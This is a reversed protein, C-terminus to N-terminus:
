FYKDWGFTGKLPHYGGADKIYDEFSVPQGPVILISYSQSETGQYQGRKDPVVGPGSFHPLIFFADERHAIKFVQQDEELNKTVKLVTQVASVGTFALTDFRSQALSKVDKGYATDALASTIFGWPLVMEGSATDQLRPYLHYHEHHPISMGAKAHNRISSLGYTAAFDVMTELYAETVITNIKDPTLDHEKKVLLMHGRVAPYKNPLLVGESYRDWPLLLNDGQVQAQGVNDCLFCDLSGDNPWRAPQGVRKATEEKQKEMLEGRRAYGEACTIHLSLEEHNRPNLLVTLTSKEAFNGPTGYAELTSEWKTLVQELNENPTNM